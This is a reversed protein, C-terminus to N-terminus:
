RCLELIKEMDKNNIVLAKNNFYKAATQLHPNTNNKDFKYVIYSTQENSYLEITAYNGNEILLQLTKAPKGEPKNMVKIIPTNLMVKMLMALNNEVEESNNPAYLRGYRLDWVHSYTWAHWDKSLDVFDAEIEWVQFQDKFRIYAAKNSRGLDININGIFFQQIIKDNNMFTLQSTKSNKDEIPLLDFHALNEAKNSKRAFFTAEATTTLLQRIRKQYVPFDPHEKLIWGQNQRVFNLSNEFSRLEIHDVLNLDKKLEPFAYKGEYSDITSYNARYVSFTALCIIIFSYFAIKLLKVDPAFLLHKFASLHLHFAIIILFIVAISLPIFWITLFATKQAITAIDEYAQYRLNSLQQLYSNLQQRMNSITILEDSTFNEREEFNRKNWIQQITQKALNIAKFINEEQKQYQLSNMRRLLEIREFKRDYAKKGRLGLLAQEGILYDITNLIFNANDFIHNNYESELMKKKELWFSDYIMDSDGIVVVDFPNNQDLSKIEAALIKTNQDPDFHQLIQQPNLGNLVVRSDMLSSVSSAKLLPYFKIKGEKEATFDPMIVSSSALMLEHLGKTIPHYPNMNKQPIKFQIVDQSFVPNQKYDVTADVTLANELDAVVYQNYFKFKWFKELEQSSSSILKSQQFGYLRVAEHAPDLFVIVKGKKSYEKIQSVMGEDLDHPLYLILLDPATQSLEDAKTINYVEYNEMLLDMISWPQGMISNADAINGFMAQGGIVAISKKQHHLQYIKTSIDQELTGQSDQAFFEIVNKNQLSDELTLGFLANQNLDILPIPQIGDALAIDEAKDLFKPYYIKYDFKGNSNQKYKELITRLNDFKLRLSSNREALIPSFYLKALVPEKLNQLINKSNATLTFLKEKTADYQLGRSLNNALVNIGFFALLFIIWATIIYSKNNSNIWGSHGATKFNVILVTSANCFAILSTFYIIDKLELLGRTLSDFHTLFSFSAITDVITVPFCLRFFALIYEIGSWFFCLNVIVAIILSIVQNKTLASISQSVGLMCGALMFSALYGLLIVNNDPNGLVNIMIWFPFTLFLALACFIWAAFFKGLVLSPISIPMSVLQIVTKQRFEESWLRMSIAPVFLLYLWPHFDFMPLLDAQGRNFIDGFYIAFSGNLILFALLYIYALPSTFYRILEYKTVTYLKRM